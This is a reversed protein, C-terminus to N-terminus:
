YEKIMKKIIKRHRNIEKTIQKGTCIPGHGPVLYKPKLLELSELSKLWNFLEKIQKVEIKPIFKSYLIDGSFVIEEDKFYVLLKPKSLGTSTIIVVEKNEFPLVHNRTIEIDPKMPEVGEYFALANEEKTNLKKIADTIEKRKIISQKHGIILAGENKFVSNGFKHAKSTETNIVYSIVNKPAVAKAYGLITQASYSTLGSDIIITENDGIIFGANVFSSNSQALGLVAYCSKTIKM